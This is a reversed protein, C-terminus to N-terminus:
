RLRNGAKPAPPALSSLPISWALLGNAQDSVLVVLRGGAIALKLERDMHLTLRYPQLQKWTVGDPSEALLLKGRTAFTEVQLAALRFTKGDDHLSYRRTEGEEGFPRVAASWTAGSDVSRVLQVREGVDYALLVLTGRALVDSSMLDVDKPGVQRFGRWPPRSPDPLSATFLGKRGGKPSARLLAMTGRATPVIRYGYDILPLEPTPEFPTDTLDGSPHSWRCDHFTAAYDISRVAGDPGKAIVPGPGPPVEVPPWFDAGGEPRFALMTKMGPDPGTLWAVQAGDDPWALSVQHIYKPEGSIPVPRSWTEGADPSETWLLTHRGTFDGARTVALLRQGRAALLLRDVLSRTVLYAGGGLRPPSLTSFALSERGGPSEVWGSYATEPALGGVLLERTGADLPRTTALSAGTAAFVLRSGEPVPALFALRASRAGTTVRARPPRAAVPPRVLQPSPTDFAGKVGFLALAVAVAMLALATLVGARAGASQRAAAAGRVLTPSAPGTRSARRAFAAPLAMGTELASAVRAADPRGEPRRELCAALLSDFPEPVPGVRESLRPAVETTQRHLLAGIDTEEFPRRGCACEFLVVGLAYVDAPPGAARGDFAEPAVYGPTGLVLGARTALTERESLAKALGFDAVKVVGDASLLVNEPKLDRHVIGAAHA